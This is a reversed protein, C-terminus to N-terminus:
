SVEMVGDEAQRIHIGGVVGDVVFRHRIGNNIEIFNRVTYGYNLQFNTRYSKIGCEITTLVFRTFERRYTPDFEFILRQVEIPLNPFM